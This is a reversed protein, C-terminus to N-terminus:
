KDEEVKIGLERVQSAAGGFVGSPPAAGNFVSDGIRAADTASNAWIKVQRTQEVIFHRVEPM